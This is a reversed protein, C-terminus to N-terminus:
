SPLCDSRQFNLEAFLRETLEENMWWLDFLENVDALLRDYLVKKQESSPDIM